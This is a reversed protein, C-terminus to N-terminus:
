RTLVRDIGHNRVSDPGDDRRRDGIDVVVITLLIPDYRDDQIFSNTRVNALLQVRRWPCFSTSRSACLERGRVSFFVTEVNVWEIFM